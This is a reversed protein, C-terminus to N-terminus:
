PRPPGPRVPPWSSRRTAPKRAPTSLDTGASAAMRTQNFVTQMLEAQKASNFFTQSQRLLGTFCEDRLQYLVKNGVWIMCYQHLYTLLGRILILVPVVLCVAVVFWFQQDAPVDPRQIEFDSWFPLDHFPRIAEVPAEPDPPLVVTFVTRIGLLLIGNFLGALVGFIIGLAFRTKYPKLYGLIRLYPGKATALFEGTSMKAIDKGTIKKQKVEELTKSKGAM